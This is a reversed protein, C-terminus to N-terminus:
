PVALLEAETWPASREAIQGRVKKVQDIEVTSAKNSWESRIYLLLDAMDEDSLVAGMAPMASNWPEGKIKIPGNLGNQPIRVLRDISGVVWESGDLPPFQGPTGLGNPQHCLSCTVTYVRKGNARRKGIPDMPQAALVQGYSDYPGYVQNHFGGAFKDLYLGGLFILGALIVLFLIPIEGHGVEPEAEVDHSIMKTREPKM